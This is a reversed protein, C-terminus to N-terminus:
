CYVVSVCLVNKSILRLTDPDARVQQLGHQAAQRPLLHCEAIELKDEVTYGSM